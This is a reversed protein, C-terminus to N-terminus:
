HKIKGSRSDFRRGDAGISLRGSVEFTNISPHVYTLVGPNKNLIFIQVELIFLENKMNHFSTVNM